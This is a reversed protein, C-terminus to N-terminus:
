RDSAPPLRLRGSGTALSSIARTRFTSRPESTSPRAPCASVATSKALWPPRIGPRTANTQTSARTSGPTAGREPRWTPCPASIAKRAGAVFGTVDDTVWRCAATGVALEVESVRALRVEAVIRGCGSREHKPTRDAVVPRQPRDTAVRRSAREPQSRGANRELFRERLWRFRRGRRDPHPTPRPVTGDVIEISPRRGRGRDGFPVAPRLDPLPGRIAVNSAPKRNPARRPFKAARCSQTLGTPSRFSARRACDLESDPCDDPRCRVIWCSAGCFRRDSRRSPSTRGPCSM